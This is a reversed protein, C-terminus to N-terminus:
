RQRGYFEAESLKERINKENPTNSHLSPAVM